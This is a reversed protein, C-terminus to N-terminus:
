FPQVWYGLYVLRIAITAITAVTVITANTAITAITAIAVVRARLLRRAAVAACLGLQVLQLPHRHLERRQVVCEVRHLRGVFRLDPGRSPISAAM